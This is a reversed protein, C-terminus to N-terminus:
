RRPRKGRSRRCADRTTPAHGRVAPEPHAAGLVQQFRPDERRGRPVDGLAVPVRPGVRAGQGREHDVHGRVGGRTQREQGADPGAPREGDDLRTPAPREAREVVEEPDM